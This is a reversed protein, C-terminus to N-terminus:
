LILPKDNKLYDTLHHNDKTMLKFLEKNEDIINQINQALQEKIYKDEIKKNKILTHNYSIVEDLFGSLKNDVDDIDSECLKTILQINKNILAIVDESVKNEKIKSLQQEIYKIKGLTEISFNTYGEINIHYNENCYFVELQSDLENHIKFTKFNDIILISFSIIGFFILLHHFGIVGLLIVTDNLSLLFGIMIICFSMLLILHSLSSYRKAFKTIGEVLDDKNNKSYFVSVNERSVAKLVNKIHQYEKEKKKREYEKEQEELKKQKKIEEQEKKFEESKISIKDKLNILAGPNNKQIQRYEELDMFYDSPYNNLSYNDDIVIYRKNFQNKKDDIFSGYLSYEEGVTLTGYIGDFIAVVKKQEHLVRSLKFYSVSCSEKLGLNSIYLGVDNLSKDKGMCIYEKGEDFNGMNRKAIYLWVKDSKM